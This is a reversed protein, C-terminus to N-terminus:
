RRHTVAADVVQPFLHEVVEISGQDAQGGRWVLAGEAEEVFVDHGLVGVLLRHGVTDVDTVVHELDLGLDRLLPRQEGRFFPDIVTVTLGAFPAPGFGIFVDDVRAFTKIPRHDVRALDPLHDTGHLGSDFGPNEWVAFFHGLSQDKGLGVAMDVVDDLHNALDVTLAVGKAFLHGVAGLFVGVRDEGVKRM